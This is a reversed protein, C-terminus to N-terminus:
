AGAAAERMVEPFTIVSRAQKGELMTEYGRNIDELAIHESVLTDLDLMGQMYLSAFRPIDRTFPASGMLAGQIRWENLLMALGPIQITAEMHLAGVITMLGGPVTMQLAQEVTQPLGIVEFSFDAGGGTLDRVAQVSDPGGAVTHTAGFREALARKEPMLDVAVIQSAGCIRAGQVVNLGVGGCGIVVVKSGPTV